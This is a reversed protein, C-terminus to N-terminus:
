RGQWTAVAEAKQWTVVMEEDLQKVLVYRGEDGQGGWGGDQRGRGKRTM